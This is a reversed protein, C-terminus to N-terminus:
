FSVGFLRMSKCLRMGDLIAVAAVTFRAPTVPPFARNALRVTGALARKSVEAGLISFPM